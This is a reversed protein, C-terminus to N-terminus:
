ELDHMAHMAGPRERDALLTTLMCTKIQHLAALQWELPHSVRWCLLGTVTTNIPVYTHLCEPPMNSPLNTSPRDSTTPIANCPFCQHNSRRESTTSAPSLTAASRIPKSISGRWNTPIETPRIPHFIFYGCSAASVPSSRRPRKRLM